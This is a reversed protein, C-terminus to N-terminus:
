QLGHNLLVKFLVKEQQKEQLNKPLPGAKGTEGNAAAHHLPPLRMGRDAASGGVFNVEETREIPALLRM